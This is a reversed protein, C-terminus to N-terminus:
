IIGLAQGTFIHLLFFHDYVTRTTALFIMRQQKYTYKNAPNWPLDTTYVSYNGQTFIDDDDDDDDMHLCSFALCEIHHNIKVTLCM